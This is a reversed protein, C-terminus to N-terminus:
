NLHVLELEHQGSIFRYVNLHAVLDNDFTTALIKPQKDKDLIDIALNTVEGNFTFYGDKKDPLKTSALLEQHTGLLGDKKTGYVEIYIGDHTKVKLVQQSSGSGTLDAQAVALIVRYDPILATRINSRLDNNLAVVLMGAIVLIGLARLVHHKITSKM